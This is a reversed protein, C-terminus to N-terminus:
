VLLCCTGTGFKEFTQLKDDLNFTIMSKAINDSRRFAIMQYVVIASSIRLRTLIKRGAYRVACM